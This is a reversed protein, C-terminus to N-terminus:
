AAHPFEELFRMNSSWATRLKLQDHLFSRIQRRDQIIVPFAIDRVEENTRGISRAEQVRLQEMERLWERAESLLQLAQADGPPPTEDTAFIAEQWKKGETRGLIMAAKAVRFKGDPTPTFLIELDEPSDGEDEPQDPDDPHTHGAILVAGGRDIVHQISWHWAVERYKETDIPNTYGFQGISDYYLVGLTEAGGKANARATDGKRMFKDRGEQSYIYVLNNSSHEYVQEWYLATRDGLDVRGIAGKENPIAPQDPLLYPYFESFPKVPSEFVEPIDYVIHLDPTYLSRQAEAAVAVM